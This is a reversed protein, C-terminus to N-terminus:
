KRVASSVKWDGYADSEILELFKVLEGHFQCQCLLFLCKRNLQTRILSCLSANRHFKILYKCICICVNTLFICICGHFQFFVSTVEDNGWRVSESWSRLNCRRATFYFANYTEMIKNAIVIRERGRGRRMM